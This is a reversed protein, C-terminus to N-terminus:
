QRVLLLKQQWVILNLVVCLYKAFKIKGFIKAFKIKGFYM